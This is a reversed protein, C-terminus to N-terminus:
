LHLVMGHLVNTENQKDEGEDKGANGGRELDLESSPVEDSKCDGEPDSRLKQASKCTDEVLAPIVM